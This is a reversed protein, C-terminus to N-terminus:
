IKKLKEPTFNGCKDITMYIRGSGLEDDDSHYVYGATEFVHRAVSKSHTHLYGPISPYKEKMWTVLMRCLTSGIRKGRYNNDVAFENFYPTYGSPNNVSKLIDATEVESLSRNYGWVFGVIKTSITDVAVAGFFNNGLAARNQITKEVESEVWAEVLEAGCDPCTTNGKTVVFNYDFYKGSKPCKSYEGFFPDFRWINCYFKALESLFGSKSQITHEDFRVCLINGSM